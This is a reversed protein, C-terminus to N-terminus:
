VAAKPSARNSVFVDRQSSKAERELLRPAHLTTRDPANWYDQPMGPSLWRQRSQAAVTAAWPLGVSHSCQRDILLKHLLTPPVPLLLSSKPSLLFLITLASIMRHPFLLCHSALDRPCLETLGGHKHGHSPQHCAPPLTLSTGATM